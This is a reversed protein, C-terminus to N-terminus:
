SFPAPQVCESTGGWEDDAHTTWHLDVSKSLPDPLSFLLSQPVAKFSVLYRDDTRGPTANLHVMSLSVPDRDSKISAGWTQAGGQSEQSWSRPEARTRYHSGFKSPETSGMHTSPVMASFDTWGGGNIGNGGQSSSAKSASKSNQSDSLLDWLPTIHWKILYAHM